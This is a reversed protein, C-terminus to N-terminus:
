EGTIRTGVEPLGRNRAGCTMLAMGGCRLRWDGLGLMDRGEDLFPLIEQVCEFYQAADVGQASLILGLGGRCEEASLFRAAAITEVVALDAAEVSWRRKYRNGEVWVEDILLDYSARHTIQWEYGFQRAHAGQRALADHFSLREGSGDCFAGSDQIVRVGVPVCVRNTVRTRVSAGYVPSVCAFPGPAVSHRNWRTENIGCYLRVGM